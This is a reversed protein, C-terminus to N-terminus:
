SYFFPLPEFYVYMSVDKNQCSAGSWYETGNKSNKTVACQCVFCKRPGKKVPICQGRGSCETTGEQCDEANAFCTSSSFIPANGPPVPFPAQTQKAKSASFDRRVRDPNTEPTSFVVAVNSRELSPQTCM